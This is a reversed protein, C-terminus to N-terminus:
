SVRPLVQIFNFYILGQISSERLILRKTDISDFAILLICSSFPNVMSSTESLEM